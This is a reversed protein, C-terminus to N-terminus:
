RTRGTELRFSLVALALDHGGARQLLLDAAPVLRVAQGLAIRSEVGVAVSPVGYDGTGIVVDGPPGDAPPADVDSVTVFALGLGARLALSRGRPVTVVTGGFHHRHDGGPAGELWAGIWEVGWALGGDAPVRQAVVRATVGPDGPGQRDHGSLVLGLGGGAGLHWRGGEQASSPEAILPALVVGLLGLLLIRNAM